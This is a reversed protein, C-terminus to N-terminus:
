QTKTFRAILTKHMPYASLLSQRDALEFDEFEFGPAVTCGVLIFDGETVEAAFWTGKPILVQLSQGHELQNGILHESHEGERNLFHIKATGGFHFHWIEDSTLRHFNSVSETTLLFYISTGFVRSSRYRDPLKSEHLRDKSRYTEKFYGGEPHEQLNLKNIWYQANKEM